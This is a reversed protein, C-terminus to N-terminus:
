ITAMLDPVLCHRLWEEGQGHSEPSQDVVRGVVLEAVVDIAVREDDADGVRQRWQQCSEGDERDQAVQSFLQVHRDVLDDVAAGTQGEDGVRHGDCLELVRRLDGSAKKLGLRRNERM